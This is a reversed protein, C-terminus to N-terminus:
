LEKLELEPFKYEFMKKKLKYVQTKFGKTDEVILKGDKYYSFDAKYTIARYTKGNKKFRDQLVFKPQLELKKIIGIKQMQKLEEYRTAEKKSDFKVNDIEKKKNGYKSSKFHKVEGNLKHANLRALDPNNNFMSKIDNEDWM